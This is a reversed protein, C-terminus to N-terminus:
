CDGGLFFKLLKILNYKQAIIFFRMVTYGSYLNNISIFVNYKVFDLIGKLWNLCLTRKYLVDALGSSALLINNKSTSNVNVLNSGLSGHNRFRNVWDILSPFEM